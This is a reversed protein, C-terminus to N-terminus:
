FAAQGLRRPSFFVCVSTEPQTKGADRHFALTGRVLVHAFSRQTKERRRFDDGSQTKFGASKECEFDSNLRLCATVRGRPPARRARTVRRHGFDYDTPMEVYVLGDCRSCHRALRSPLLSVQSGVSQSVRASKLRRRRTHPPARFSRMTYRSRLDCLSLSLSLSSKSFASLAGRVDGTATATLDAEPECAMAEDELEAFDEEDLDTEQRPLESEAACPVTVAAPARPKKKAAFAAQSPPSQSSVPACRKRRPAEDGRRCAFCQVSKSVSNPGEKASVGRSPPCALRERECM